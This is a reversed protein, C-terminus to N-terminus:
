DQIVIGFLEELTQGLCFVMLCLGIIKTIANGIEIIDM